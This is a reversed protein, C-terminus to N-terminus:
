IRPRGPAGDRSAQNAVAEIQARERKAQEAAFMTKAQAGGDWAQKIAWDLASSGDKDLLDLRAGASLLMRLGDMDEGGAAFMLATQGKGNRYDIGCGSSILVDMAQSHMWSAMRMLPTFGYSDEVDLRAGARALIEVCEGFGNMAALSIASLGEQNLADVDVGRDILFKLDRAMGLDAAQWIDCGTRRERRRGLSFEGLGDDDERMSM